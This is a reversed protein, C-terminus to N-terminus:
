SVHQRFPYLEHTEPLPEWGYTLPSEAPHRIWDVILPWDDTPRLIWSPVHARSLRMLCAVQEPKVITVEGKVEIALIWEDRIAVLDPWGSLTTGTRWGHKTQLPFVHQVAYGFTELTQVLTGQWSKETTKVPTM